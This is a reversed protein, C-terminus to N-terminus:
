RAHSVLFWKHKTVARQTMKQFKEDADLRMFRQRLKCGCGTHARDRTVIELTDARFMLQDVRLCVPEAVVDSVNSGVSDTGLVLVDEMDCRGCECRTPNVTLQRPRKGCRTLEM